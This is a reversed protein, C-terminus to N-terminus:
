RNRICPIQIKDTYTTDGILIVNEICSLNLANEKNMKDKRKKKIKGIHVHTEGKQRLKAKLQKEMRPNCINLM